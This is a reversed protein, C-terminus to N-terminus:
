ACCMPVPQLTPETTLAMQHEQLLGLNLEWCGRPLECGGTIRTGSGDEELSVYMIYLYIHLCFAYFLDIKEFLLCARLQVWGCLYVCEVCVIAGINNYFNKFSLM